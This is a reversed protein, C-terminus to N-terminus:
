ELFLSKTQWEVISVQIVQSVLFETGAQNGSKYKLSLSHRWYSLAPRKVHWVASLLESAGRFKVKLKEDDDYAITISM